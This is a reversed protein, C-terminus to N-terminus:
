KFEYVDNLALRDGNVLQLDVQGSVPDVAVSDVRGYMQIPVSRATGNITANAVLQYRGTDARTGLANLGDWSFNSVGTSRPGLPLNAVLAGYQDSVQLTVQSAYDPLSLQGDISGESGLVADDTQYLVDRNLMSAASGMQNRQLSSALSEFSSQLDGVGSATSFQAIQTLFEGNEVPQMPDQNQMQAVLLALFQDQGVETNKPQGSSASSGGILEQINSLAQM